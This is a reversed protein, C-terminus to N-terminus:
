YILDEEWNNESEERAVNINEGRYTFLESIKTYGKERFDEEKENVIYIDINWYEKIHSLKKNHVGRFFM